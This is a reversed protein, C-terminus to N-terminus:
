RACSNFQSVQSNYSNILLKIQSVLNNYQGVLDNYQSVAQNYQRRSDFRTNEIEKRKEDILLILDDAQKKYFEIQSKLAADPQPCAALPFGFEQVAIWTTRGEFVGKLVAVGIERYRTNLINARHGPSDMWAQVLAEEDKFNGLALNEGFAVFSYSFKKALDEPGAGAPSVHEFYQNKFMEQVKALAAADLKTNSALPLLGGNAARQLNTWKIVVSKTLTALSEEQNLRLPPPASVQKQIDKVLQDLSIKEIDSFNKTLHDYFNLLDARFYFGLGVFILLILIVSIKKM